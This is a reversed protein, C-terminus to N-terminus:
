VTLGMCGQRRCFLWWHIGSKPYCDTFDFIGTKIEGIALKEALRKVNKLQRAMMIKDLVSFTYFFGKSSIDRNIYGKIKCWLRCQTGQETIRYEIFMDKM